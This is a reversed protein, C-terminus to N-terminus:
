CTPQKTCNKLDYNCCSSKMNHCEQFHINFGELIIKKKKEYITLYQNWFKSLADVDDDISHKPPNYFCNGPAM